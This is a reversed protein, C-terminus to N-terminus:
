SGNDERKATEKKGFRHERITRVTRTLFRELARVGVLVGHVLEHVIYAVIIRLRSTTMEVNFKRVTRTLEMVWVDLRARTPALMRAGKRKEFSTLLFFGGLLIFIIAIAISLIM